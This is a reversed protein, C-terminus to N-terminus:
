QGFGQGLSFQFTWKNTGPHDNNVREFTDFNYGYAMEVMGLIPLFVKLGFGASRFLDSPNWADFGEWANAADMFLYPAASLQQSQIAMWRLEAGYKNLIRGGFPEGDRRPGLAGIPFGRMYIIEKGFFSGFFGQTEFPSGGVVFREFQVEDGTLSGIYGYDTSFGFAIKNSLPINWSNQLRWKHYQISGAIPPAIEASLLFRSGSSPFLPHNTSNRTLSQRVTIEQSVGQPLTSIWDDNDYYQYRLQTGTSFRDDPWTLRREYFVSNSFTVLKGADDNDTISFGSIKSFSTNFGAPRPRGRFWPERFSLSYQQYRRGNTQIGVSFQQGDGSPLPRWADGEFMDQASFNNFNFRLQLILGFRGFTGSLELQDTGTEELNYQLDVTKTEPQIDQTPGSAVSEQTFYNLQMLRRVSEELLDRQYTAGPVTYLERRIVHEKTKTNGAISINGFSYIEGEHVEIIIDLSDEAVVRVNPEAYFQMYGSNMHLSFVNNNDGQPFLGEELESIDYPEGRELGLRETLAADSYLTNGDWRIDRVFYRNGEAVEVEVIMEPDGEEIGRIYTTDRIVRADYYGRENYKRIIRDLDESYEMPDLRANRWFRWTSNKKTEMARRISRDSLAENGQIRIDEVKVKPGREIQFDLSVTNDDNETRVVDVTALPHGKEEFFELILQETREVASTRVPGRTILPAEERLDKAQGKKVGSFTYERLSPAPTVHISLYIGNGVRRDEVIRVDEYTGLRHIARIADALAPDGPLM